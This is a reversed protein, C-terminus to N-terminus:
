MASVEGERMRPRSPERCCNAITVPIKKDRVMSQSNACRAPLERSSNHNPRGAHRQINRAMASGASTYPVNANVM